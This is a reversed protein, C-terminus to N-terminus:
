PGISVTVVTHFAPFVSSMCQPDSYWVLGSNFHYFTMRDNFKEFGSHSRCVPCNVMGNSNWSLTRTQPCIQANKIQNKYFTVFFSVLTHSTKLCRSIVLDSNLCDAKSTQTGPRTKQTGFKKGSFEPIEQYRANPFM